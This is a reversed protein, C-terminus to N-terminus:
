RTIWELRGRSIGAILCFTSCIWRLGKKFDRKGRDVHIHLRHIPDGWTTDNEDDVVWSYFLPHALKGDQPFYQLIIPSIYLIHGLSSLMGTANRFSLPHTCSPGQWLRHPDHETALLHSRRPRRHHHHLLPLQRHDRRLHVCLLMNGAQAEQVHLQVEQAQIWAVPVFM